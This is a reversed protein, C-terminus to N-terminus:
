YSVNAAGLIVSNVAFYIGQVGHVSLLVIYVVGLSNHSCINNRPITLKFLFCM